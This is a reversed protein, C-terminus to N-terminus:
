YGYEVRLNTGAENVVQWSSSGAKQIPCVKGNSDFVRFNRVNKAFNGLEYRGPRWRPLHILANAPVGNFDARFRIYQQNAEEISLFYEAMTRKEEFNSFPKPQVFESM